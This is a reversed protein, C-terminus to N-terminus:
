KQVLTVLNVQIYALLIIWLDIRGEVKLSVANAVTGDAAPTATSAFLSVGNFTTGAMEFLQIQLDKFENNYTAQDNVNKMVDRSLSKLESMRDLIKSVSDLVGDQVELFSIANQINSEAASLRNISAKLKMAVALGGADDAPATIRSGSSLKTLSKQLSNSNRGLHFNAKVAAPNTSVYLPM